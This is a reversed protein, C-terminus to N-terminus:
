EFLDSKLEEAFEKVIMQKHAWIEKAKKTVMPEQTLIHLSHDNLNNLGDIYSEPSKGGIGMLDWAVALAGEEDLLDAEMVYILELPTNKDMLLNKCSHYKICYAVRETFVRDLNHENAYDLFVKESYLPHYEKGHAYGVDHFICAAYIVNKDVVAGDDIIKKSWLYVRKSHLFRDRFPFKKSKIGEHSELYEKVYTLMEDFNLM